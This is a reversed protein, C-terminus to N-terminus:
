LTEDILRHQAVISTLRAPEWRGDNVGYRGSRGPRGPTLPAAAGAPGTRLLPRWRGEISHVGGPSATLHVGARARPPPPDCGGDITPAHVDYYPQQEPSPQEGDGQPPDGAGPQGASASVVRRPRGCCRLRWGRRPRIQRSGYRTRLLRRRAHCEPRLEDQCDPSALEGATLLRETRDLGDAVILM